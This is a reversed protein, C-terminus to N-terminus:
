DYSGYVFWDGSAVDRYMRYLAAGDKTNGDKMRLAVDWEDHQWGDDTWWEGSTRWPGACATVEARPNSLFVHALFSVRVPKGAQLEVRARLPPRFLRLALRASRANGTELKRNGADREPFQFRSVSFRKLRHADPRHSDLVEAAGVNQEGVIGAVRALLLELKEPEPAVPVFFGDQTARPKVPEARVAIKEVPAPPPHASLDLQLLKLLVKADQMPVPLKLTRAFVEGRLCQAVSSDKEKKKDEKGKETGGHRRPPNETEDAHDLVCTLRVENTALSRAKLRGCLQELMRNLLFALPELNEVPYELECIEEFVAAPEFPVLTRSWEGRALRQLLLGRQGLREVVAVAPLAAFPRLTRIGWRQMVEAFREVPAAGDFDQPAEAEQALIEVPLLGLREATQEPPIITVGAFGRAAYVAADPNAAIAVHAEIGLDCARRALDRGLKAPPGFLVELGVLDLVVTDAATAEVRPSFACAADLLAAYAAAEQAPSRPLLKVVGFSEAELRTMGPEIGLARARENAAMVKELPPKGELVAVPQEPEAGDSM